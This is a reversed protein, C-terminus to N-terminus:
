LDEDKNPTTNRCLADIETNSRWLLRFGLSFISTKAIPPIIRLGHECAMLREQDM